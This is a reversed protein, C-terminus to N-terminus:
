DEDENKRKWKYRRLCMMIARKLDELTFLLRM